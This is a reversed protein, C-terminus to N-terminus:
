RWMKGDAWSVVGPMAQGFVCLSGMVSYTPYIASPWTRGEADNGLSHVSTDAHRFQEILKTRERIKCIPAANACGASVMLLPTGTPTLLWAQHAHPYFGSVMDFGLTLDLGRLECACRLWRRVRPRQLQLRFYLKLLLLGAYAPRSTSYPFLRFYSYVHSVPSQSPIAM